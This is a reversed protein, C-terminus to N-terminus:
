FNKLNNKRNVGGLKDAWNEPYIAYYDVNHRYRYNKFFNCWIFSPLGVLLLYLWGLIYSQKTHGQEHKLVREDYRHGECIFIYTGLSVSGGYKNEIIYYDDVKKAKSIKKFIFGALMQPFCWIWTLLKM